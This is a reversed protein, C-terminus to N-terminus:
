KGIEIINQILAQCRGCNEATGAKTVTGVKEVTDAGKKIADLVDKLSVEKCGCVSTRIGELSSKCGECANCVGAMEIIEETTRAGQVMAKRITSYYVNNSTCIIKDETM